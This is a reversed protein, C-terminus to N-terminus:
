LSLSLFLFSPPSPSFFMCRNSAPRVEELAITGDGLVTNVADQGCAALMAPGPLRAPPWTINGHASVSTAALAAVALFSTRM